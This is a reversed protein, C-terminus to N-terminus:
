EPEPPAALAEAAKIVRRIVLVVIVAGIFISAVGVDATHMSQGFLNLETDGKAGLYVLTVGLCGFIGALLMVGVVIPVYLSRTVVAGMTMEFRREKKGDPYEREINAVM